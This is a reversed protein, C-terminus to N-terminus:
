FLCYTEINKIKNWTISNSFNFKPMLEKTLIISYIRLDIKQLSKTLLVSQTISLINSHISCFGASGNKAITMLSCETTIDNYDTMLVIGNNESSGSILPYPGTKANYINRNFNTKLVIIIDSIKCKRFIGKSLNEYCKYFESKEIFNNKLQNQLEILCINKLDNDFYKTEIIIKSSEIIKSVKEFLKQKVNEKEKNKENIEDFELNEIHKLIVQKEDTIKFENRHPIWYCDNLLCDIEKFEYHFDKFSDSILISIDGTGKGKFIKNGLNIQIRKVHKKYEKIYRTPLIAIIVNCNDEMLSLFEFADHDSIKKTYPPNIFCVDYKEKNNKMFEFCDINKISGKINKMMFNLRAFNYIKKELELGTFEISDSLMEFIHSELNGAGYCPDIIKVVDELFDGYFNIYLSNMLTSIIQPTWVNNKLVDDKQYKKFQQYIENLENRNYKWVNYITKSFQFLDNTQINEFLSINVDNSFSKKTYELLLTKFFDNSVYELTEYIYIFDDFEFSMLIIQFINSIEKYDQTKFSKVILDHVQQKNIKKSVNENFKLQKIDSLNLEKFDETFFKVIISDIGFCICAYLVCKTNYKRITQFCKTVQKIAEDLQSIDHKNKIIILGNIIKDIGNIEYNHNFEKKWYNQLLNM